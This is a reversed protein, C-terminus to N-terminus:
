GTINFHSYNSSVRIEPRDGNKVKVCHEEFLYASGYNALKRFYYDRERCDLAKVTLEVNNTKPNSFAM